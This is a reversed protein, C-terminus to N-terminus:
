EQPESRMLIASERYLERNSAQFEAKLRVRFDVLDVLQWGEFQWLGEDSQGRHGLGLILHSADDLVKNTERKPEFYFTRFSSQESGSRYVKPDLYFVRGSALHEIRLDPYGSLQAEGKANSPVMCSLGEIQNISELLYAEVHRSTENIRRTQHVPHTADSFAGLMSDACAQISQLMWADVPDETNVALVEADSVAEVVEAFRVGELRSGDELLWEVFSELDDNAVLSPAGVCFVLLSMARLASRGIMDM